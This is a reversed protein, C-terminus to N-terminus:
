QPISVWVRCLRLDSEVGQPTQAAVALLHKGPEFILPSTTGSIGKKVGQAGPPVPIVMLKARNKLGGSIDYVNFNQVCNKTLGAKCAKTRTFDYNFTVTIKHTSGAAQAAIPFPIALAMALLVRMKMPTRERHM